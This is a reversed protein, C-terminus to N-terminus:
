QMLMSAGHISARMKVTLAGGKKREQFLMPKGDAWKVRPM